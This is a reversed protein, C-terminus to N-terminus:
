RKPLLVTQWTSALKNGPAIARVAVIYNTAKDNIGGFQEDYVGSARYQISRPYTTIVKGLHSGQCVAVEFHDPVTAGSIYRFDIRFSHDGEALLKLDNVPLCLPSQKPPVPTGSVQHELGIFYAQDVTGAVLTTPKGFVHQALEVAAVTKPGYNGDVVLLPNLHIKKSLKNLVAQLSKVQNGSVGPLMPWLAPPPTPVFLSSDFSDADYNYTSAYQIADFGGPIVPDNDWAAVWLGYNVRPIGAANLANEVYPMTSGNAYLLPKTTNVRVWSHVFAPADSPVADGTEIDLCDVGTTVYPSISVYKKGPFDAEVSSINTFTGRGYGAYVDKGAQMGLPSVSDQGTLTTM